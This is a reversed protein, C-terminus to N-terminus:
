TTTYKIVAVFAIHMRQSSAEEQSHVRQETPPIRARDIDVPAVPVHGDVVPDSSM